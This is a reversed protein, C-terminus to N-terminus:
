QAVPSPALLGALFAATTTFVTVITQTDTGGTASWFRGVMLIAVAGLFAAAFSAVIILWIANAVKKSPKSLNEARLEEDATMSM